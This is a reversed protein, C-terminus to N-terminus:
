NSNQLVVTLKIILIYKQLKKSLKGKVKFQM